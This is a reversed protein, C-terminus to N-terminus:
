IEDELTAHKLFLIKIALRIQKNTIQKHTQYLSSTYFICRKQFQEILCSHFTMLAIRELRAVSFYNRSNWLPWMKAETMFYM